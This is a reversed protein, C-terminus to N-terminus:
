RVPPTQSNMNHAEGGGALQALLDNALNMHRADAPPGQDGNHRPKLLAIFQREVTDLMFEPVAIFYVRDFQKGRDRRHTGIRQLPEVSQGVYVVNDGDCLFYVGPPHLHHTLETLGRLGGLSPPPLTKVTGAAAVIVKLEFKPEAGEFRQMLHRAAWTKSESKNFQPEGGDFRYHPWFGAVALDRVRDESLGLLEAVAKADVLGSPWEQCRQTVTKLPEVTYGKFTACSNM